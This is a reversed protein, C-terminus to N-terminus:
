CLGDFTSIAIRYHNPGFIKQKKIIGVETDIEKDQESFYAGAKAM